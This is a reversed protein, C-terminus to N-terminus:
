LMKKQLVWKPNDCSCSFGSPVRGREIVKCEECLWLSGIDPLALGAKRMIKYLSTAADWAYKENDLLRAIEEIAREAHIENYAVAVSTANKKRNHAKRCRDSCTTKSIRQRKFKQGCVVCKGINRDIISM